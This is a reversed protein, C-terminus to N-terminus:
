NWSSCKFAMAGSISGFQGQLFFSQGRCPLQMAHTWNWLSLIFFRGNQRLPRTFGLQDLPHAEFFRSIGKEDWRADQVMRATAMSVASAMTQMVAMSQNAVQIPHPANSNHFTRCYAGHGRRNHM